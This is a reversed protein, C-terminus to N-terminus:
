AFSSSVAHYCLRSTFLKNGLTGVCQSYVQFLDPRMNVVNGILLGGASRGACVCILNFALLVHQVVISSPMCFTNIASPRAFLPVPPREKPLCTLYAPICYLLMFILRAATFGLYCALLRAKLPLYRLNPTGM